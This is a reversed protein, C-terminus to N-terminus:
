QQKQIRKPPAFQLLDQSLATKATLAALMSRWVLSRVLSKSNPSGTRGLPKAGPAFTVPAGYAPSKGIRALAVTSRKMQWVRIPADSRDPHLSKQSPDSKRQFPAWERRHGTIVEAEPFSSFTIAATSPNAPSASAKASARFRAASFFTSSCPPLWSGLQYAWRQSSSGIVFGSCLIFPINQIIEQFPISSNWKTWWRCWLRKHYQISDSIFKSNKTLVNQQRRNPIIRQPHL